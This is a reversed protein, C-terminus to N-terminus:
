GPASAGPLLTRVAVLREPRVARVFALWGAVYVATALAVEIPLPLPSLELLLGAVAAVALTEAFPTLVRVHPLHRRLIAVGIVAEVAYAATTALAAAAVGAGPVLVLNLAVNVVLACVAGVLIGRTREIAVLTAGTMAAVAYVPPTLALWRVASSAAEYRAGYLLELVAEAEVLCVAVFPAYVFSLVVLILESLRAVEERDDPRANMLPAVAGVVAFTLFLVTEFLRYAAAYLGVAQDDKLVSLLVADLRFLAIAFLSSLGLTWSGRAFAVLGRRDLLRRRFAVDIRSLVRVHAIWGVASSVLFAAAMGELGLGAALAPIMLAAAVIRQLALAGSTRAQDRAAAASARATDSWIDLFVACLVLVIATRVDADSRTLWVSGAALAFVPLAIGVEWAIAQTHFTALRRRDRSARRVLVPDFGGEAFASAILAVALAFNFAGFQEQTLTRAAVVTWALTSLKGVVDAAAAAVANHAVPRDPPGEPGAESM